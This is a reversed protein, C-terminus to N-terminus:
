SFEFTETNFFALYQLNAYDGVLWILKGSVTTAHASVGNPMNRVFSWTGNNFDYSHIGTSVTDAYGGFVYLKGDVVRGSTQKAELMDPLRIWEFNEPNFEYFRNSYGNENSGGFLYIKNNWVASGGYEVPFPNSANYSYEGTSVDVIEVTDTYTDSFFSYGNFIYIKNQSSIYEASGFRRAKLVLNSEQWYQNTIDYKEMTMSIWPSNNTGGSIAYIYQGDSTHGMGFRRSVMSDLHSFSVDYQSYIFTFSSLFLIFIRHLLKKM